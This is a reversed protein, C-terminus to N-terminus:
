VVVHNQRLRISSTLSWVVRVATIRRSVRRIEDTYSEHSRFLLLINTFLSKVGLDMSKHAAVIHNRWNRISSTLLSIVGITAVWGSM